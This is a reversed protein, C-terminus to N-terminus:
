KDIHRSDRYNFHSINIFDIKRKAITECIRVTANKIGFVGKSIALTIFYLGNSAFIKRRAAM